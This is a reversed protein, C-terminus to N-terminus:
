GLKVDWAGDVSVPKIEVQKVGDLNEPHGIGFSKLDLGAIKAMRGAHSLNFEKQLAAFQSEVRLFVYEDFSARDINKINLLTEIIWTKNNHAAVLLATAGNGNKANVDAGANLLIHLASDDDRVVAWTLATYGREDKFNVDAGADVLAQIEDAPSQRKLARILQENINSVDM